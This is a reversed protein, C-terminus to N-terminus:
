QSAQLQGPGYLGGHGAEREHCLDALMQSANEYFARSNFLGTLYDKMGLERERVLGAAINAVLVGVFAFVVMQVFYNITLVLSSMHEDASFYMADLWAVSSAFSIFLACWRGGSYSAIIIPIFYLPYVRIETGTIYDIWGVVFVGLLSAFCVLNKNPSLMM